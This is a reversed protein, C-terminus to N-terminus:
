CSSKKHFNEGWIPQKQSQKQSFVHRNESLKAKSHKTAIEHSNQPNTSPNPLLLFLIFDNFNKWKFKLIQKPEEPRSLEGGLYVEGCSVFVSEWGLSVRLNKVRM